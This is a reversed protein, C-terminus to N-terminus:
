SRPFAMQDSTRLNPQRTLEQRLTSSTQPLYNGQPRRRARFPAVGIEPRGPCRRAKAVHRRWLQNGYSVTLKKLWKRIFNRRVAEPMGEQPRKGQFLTM